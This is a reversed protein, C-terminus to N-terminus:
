ISLHLKNLKNNKKYLYVRIKFFNIIEDNSDLKNPNFEKREVYRKCQHKNPCHKGRCYIM